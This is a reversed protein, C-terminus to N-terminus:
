VGSLRIAPAAMTTWPEHEHEHENIVPAATAPHIIHHLIYPVYEVYVSHKIKERWIKCSWGFGGDRAWRENMGGGAHCWCVMAVRECANVLMWLCRYNLSVFCSVEGGYYNCTAYGPQAKAIVMMMFVLTHKNCSIPLLVPECVSLPPSHRVHVLQELPKENEVLSEVNVCILHFCSANLM